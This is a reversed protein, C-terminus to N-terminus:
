HFWIRQYNRSTPHVLLAFRAVPFLLVLLIDLDLIAGLGEDVLFIAFPLLGLVSITVGLVYAWRRDHAIGFGAAASGVVLLLGIPFLFFISGRLVGFVASIYLLIVAIRLTQPQSPNTWRRTEM